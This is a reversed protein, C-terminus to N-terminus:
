GHRLVHWLRFVFFGLLACFMLLSWEAISLDLLTWARDACSGTALFLLPLREGAWDVLQEWWPYEMGCSSFRVVRQLWTQYGAVFVGTAATTSMLALLAIAALRRKATFLGILGFTGILLYLMRQIICLPCPSLNLVGSLVVGFAVLGFGAAIALLFPFRPSGVFAPFM